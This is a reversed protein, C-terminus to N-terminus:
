GRHEIFADESEDLAQERLSEDWEELLGYETMQTMGAIALRLQIGILPVDAVTVVVDATLVAGDRLLVDVLGVIQDEDKTPEM